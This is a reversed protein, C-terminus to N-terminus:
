RLAAVIPWTTRAAWAPRTWYKGIKAGNQHVGVCAGRVSRLPHDNFGLRRSVDLLDKEDV